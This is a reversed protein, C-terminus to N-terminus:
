IEAAALLAAEDGNDKQDPKKSFLKLIFAVILGVFAVIALVAAIIAQHRAGNDNTLKADAIDQAAIASLIGVAGTAVLSGLLFIYIIIDGFISVTELGFILYLIGLILIAAVTIWTAIAASTLRSKASELKKNNAGNKVGNLRVRSNTSFGGAIALTIFSIGLFILNVFSM